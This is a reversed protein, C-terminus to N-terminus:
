STWALSTSRKSRATRRGCTYRIPLEDGIEFAHPIKLSIVFKGSSGDSDCTWAPRDGSGDGNGDIVPAPEPLLVDPSRPMGCDRLSSTAPGVAKNPQCAQTTHYSLAYRARVCCQSELKSRFEKWGQVGQLLELEEMTAMM